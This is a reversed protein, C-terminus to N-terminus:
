RLSILGRDVLEAGLCFACMAVVVIGFGYIMTSVIPYETQFERGAAAVMLCIGIFVGIALLIITTM